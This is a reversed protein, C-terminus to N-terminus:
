SSSPQNLIRSVKPDYPIYRRPIFIPILIASIFLLTIKCWVSWGDAADLPTKNFTALPYLDRYTYVGLAALLATNLHRVVIRTWRPKACVSIVALLFAYLQHNQTLRPMDVLTLSARIDLVDRIGVM